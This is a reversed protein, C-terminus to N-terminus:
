VAQVIRMFKSLGAGSVASDSLIEFEMPAEALEDGIFSLGSIPSFKLRHITINVPKGSLAENLGDFFLTFEQGAQVLAELVESAHKTYSAKVGDTDIASENLVLLGNDTLEYDTGEVLASDDGADKLTITQEKDPISGFPIFEGTTGTATLLEDTVTASSVKTVAGRLAPALTSAMIDLATVSGTVDSITSVSNTNGGGARTFDKQPKKDEGFSTELKSCNGFHFFGTNGGRLKLYINGKGMYSRDIREM